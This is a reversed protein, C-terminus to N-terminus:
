IGADEGARGRSRAPGSIGVGLDQVQEVALENLQPLLMVLLRAQDSPLELPM